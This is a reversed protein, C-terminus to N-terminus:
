DIKKQLQQFASIFMKFKHDTKAWAIREYTFVYHLKNWAIRKDEQDYFVASWEPSWDELPVLEFGNGYIKLPGRLSRVDLSQKNTQIGWDFYKEWYRFHNKLRDSIEKDSEKHAAKIRWKNNVLSFPNDAEEYNNKNGEFHYATQQKNDPRVDLILENKQIGEISIRRKKNNHGTLVILEKDLDWSGYTFEELWATYQGNAQLNIFHTPNLEPDGSAPDSDENNASKTDDYTYFWVKSLADHRSCSSTIVIVSALLVLLQKPFSISPHM